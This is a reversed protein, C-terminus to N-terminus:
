AFYVGQVYSVTFYTELSFCLGRDNIPSEPVVGSKILNTLRPSLEIDIFDNGCEDDVFLPAKIEAVDPTEGGDGENSLNGKLIPTEPINEIGDLTKEQQVDSDCLRSIPLTEDNICRTPSTIEGIATAQMTPEKNEETSTRLHCSDQKLSNPSKASTADEKFPLLPVSLISVKGFADVSVYDSGFLYSHAPPDQGCFDPVSHKEQTKLIERPSVESVERQSKKNPSDVFVLLGAHLNL